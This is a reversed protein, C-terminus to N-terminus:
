NLSLKRPTEGDPAANCVYRLIWDRFNKRLPARGGHQGNARSQRRRVKRRFAQTWPSVWFARRTPL